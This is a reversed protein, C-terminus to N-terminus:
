ILQRAEKNCTLSSVVAKNGVVIEAVNDINELSGEVNKDVNSSQSRVRDGIAVRSWGDIPRWHSGKDIWGLCKSEKDGSNAVINTVRTDIVAEQNVQVRREGLEVVVARDQLRKM